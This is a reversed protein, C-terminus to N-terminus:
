AMAHALSDEVDAFRPPPLRRSGPTTDKRPCNPFSSTDDTKRRTSMSSHTSMSLTTTTTTTGRRGGKRRSSSRRSRCRCRCRPRSRSPSGSCGRRQILSRRCRGGRSAGASIQPSDSATAPIRASRPREQPSPSIVRHREHTQAMTRASAGGVDTSETTGARWVGTRHGTMGCRKADHPCRRAADIGDHADHRM